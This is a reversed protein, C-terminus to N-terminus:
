QKGAEMEELVRTVTRMASRRTRNFTGESIYLQSMIERNPKDDIYAGHLIIYPYWERPPPNLALIMNLFLGGVSWLTLSTLWSILSRPSRTIVYWGLWVATILGLYNIILSFSLRTTM